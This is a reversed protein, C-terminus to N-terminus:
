NLQVNYIYFITIYSHTSLHNFTVLTKSILNFLIFVHLKRVAHIYITIMLTTILYISYKTYFYKMELDHFGSCLVLKSRNIIFIALYKYSIKLEPFNRAGKARTTYLLGRLNLPATPIQRSQLFNIKQIAKMFGPSLSM